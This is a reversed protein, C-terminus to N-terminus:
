RLLRFKYTDTSIISRKDHTSVLQIRESPEEVASSALEAQDVAATVVAVLTSATATVLQEAVVVAVQAPQVEAWPAAVLRAAQAAAVEAVIEARVAIVADAPRKQM